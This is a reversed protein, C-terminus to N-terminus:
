DSEGALLDEAFRPVGDILNENYLDSCFLLTRGDASAALERLQTGPWGRLIAQPEGDGGAPFRWIEVYRASRDDKDATAPMVEAAVFTDGSESAMRSEPFWGMRVDPGLLTNMQGWTVIVSETLTIVGDEPEGEFSLRSVRAGLGDDANSCTATFSRGAGLLPRSKIAVNEPPRLEALEGTELDLVRWTPDSHHDDQHLLTRGDATIQPFAGDALHTAPQDASPERAGRYREPVGGTPLNLGIPLAFLGDSRFDQSLGMFLVRDAVRHGKAVADDVDAGDALPLFVPTSGPGLHRVVPDAADAGADQADRDLLFLRSGQGHYSADFLVLRGDPSPCPSGLTFRGPIPEDLLLQCDAATEGEPATWAYLALEYAAAPNAGLLLAVAAFRM